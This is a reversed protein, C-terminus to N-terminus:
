GKTTKKKKVVSSADSEVEVAMVGLDLWMQLGQACAIAEAAFVSPVWVNQVVRSGLVKGESGRGVIRSCSRHEDKKFAGDFNIKVFPSKSPKWREEVMSKVPLVIKLGDLESLYNRVFDATELTTIKKSEHVWRNTATWIAWLLKIRALITKDSFTGPLYTRQVGSCGCLYSLPCKNNIEGMRRLNAYIGGSVGISAGRGM